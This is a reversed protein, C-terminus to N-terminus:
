FDVSLRSFMAGEGEDRLDGTLLSVADEDDASTDGTAVLADAPLSSKDGTPMFVTNAVIEGYDHFKGQLRKSKKDARFLLKPCFQMRFVFM